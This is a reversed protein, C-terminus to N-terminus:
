GMDRIARNYIRPRDDVIVIEPTNESTEHHPNSTKEAGDANQPNNMQATQTSM